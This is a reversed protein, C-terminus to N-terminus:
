DAGQPEAEDSRPRTKRAAQTDDDPVPAGAPPTPSAPAHSVPTPSTPLTPAPVPPVAPGPGTPVAQAVVPGSGGPSRRVPPGLEEAPGTQLEAIRETLRRNQERAQDLERRLESSALRLQELEQSTKHARSREDMLKLGMGVQRFFALLGVILAGAITAGILVLALSTTLDWGLFQLIILHSNQIAFAAVALAFFLALFLYVVAGFGGARM